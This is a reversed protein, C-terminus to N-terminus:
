QEQQQEQQAVATGAAVAPVAAGAAGAAGAAAVAAGAAVAAPVAAGAAGAAAVAAGAAVAAPVAAGAAAAAGSALLGLASVELVGSGARRVADTRRQMKRVEEAIGEFRKVIERIKPESSDFERFFSAAHKKLKDSLDPPLERSLRRLNSAM